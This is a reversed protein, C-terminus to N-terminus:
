FQNRIDMMDAWQDTQELLEPAAYEYAMSLSACEKPDGSDYYGYVLYTIGYSEMVEWIQKGAIDQVLKM